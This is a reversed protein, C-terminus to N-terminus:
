ISWDEILRLHGAASAQRVYRRDATVMTGHRARALAHYAADYATVGYAKMLRVMEGAYPGPPAEPMGLAVLAAILDAAKAPERRGLVNAVEFTWLAPVVIDCAGEHWADRLALARDAHPEDAAQLAWKLIVSADPVVLPIV